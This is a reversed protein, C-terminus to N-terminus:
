VLYRATFFKDVYDGCKCKSKKLNKLVLKSITGPLVSTAEAAHLLSPYIIEKETEIFTIVVSKRRKALTEESFPKRSKAVFAGRFRVTFFAENYDGGGKITSKKTKNNALYLITSCHRGTAKAADVISLCIIEVRTELITIVIARSRSAVIKKQIASMRAKEEDTRRKGLNSKSIKTRTEQSVSGGTGGVHLNYGKNGQAMCKLARIVAIEVLDLEEKQQIGAILVLTMFNDRGYANIANDIATKRGGRGGLHGGMRRDFNKTKGVYIKQNVINTLM